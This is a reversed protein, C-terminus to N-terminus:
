LQLMQLLLVSGKAPASCLL